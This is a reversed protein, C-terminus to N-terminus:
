GEDEDSTAEINAKPPKAKDKAVRVQDAAGQVDDEVTHGLDRLAANIAPVAKLLAAYQDVSLSIGQGLVCM